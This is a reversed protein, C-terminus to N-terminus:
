SADTVLKKLTWQGYLITVVAMMANIGVLGFWFSNLGVNMVSVLVYSVSMPLIIKRIVSEILGYGPRKVAQLFGTYIFTMVYSWQIFAMIKVYRAGAEIVALDDTFVGVLQNAFVFILASALVILFFGYKVCLRVCEEVRNMKGAGNNQGVISVIASGLGIAPLLAIQEIRTGVGFAAVAVDSYTNLYYTTVFFGLAISMFSFSTPIGQRLIERYIKLQPMQKFLQGFSLYGRRLVTSFIFLGGLAQILVTAWAIGAIGLAPVGFGGYLFWPNFILNLFFGVVLVKSFTKSDGHALLIANSLSSLLFFSSGIFLPTIYEVAVDLSEGSAGMIRFLPTAATLGTFTVLVAFIAGLSFVQITLTQEKAQDKAGIAGAVLASTGRAVGESLAIIIFFVPFSLAMAALASTSVQGAYFSDVVNYMTNFFFGVSLPLAISRIHQPLPGETLSTSSM